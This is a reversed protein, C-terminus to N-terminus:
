DDPTWGWIDLDEDHVVGACAASDAAAANWADYDQLEENHVEQWRSICSARCSSYLHTCRKPALVLYRSESSGHECRAFEPGEAAQHLVYRGFFVLATQPSFAQVHHTYNGEEVEKPSPRTDRRFHLGRSFELPVLALQKAAKPIWINAVDLILEEELRGSEYHWDNYRTISAIIRLTFDRLDLDGLDIEDVDACGCEALWESAKPLRLHPFLVGMRSEFDNYHLFFDDLRPRMPVGSAQACLSPFLVHELHVESTRHEDNHLWGIGGRQGRYTGEILGLVVADPPLILQLQTQSALVIRAIHFNFAGFHQSDLQELSLGVCSKFDSSARHLEELPTENLLRTLEASNPAATFGHYKLHKRASELSEPSSCLGNSLAAPGLELELDPPRVTAALSTYSDLLTGLVAEKGTGGPMGCSFSSSDSHHSALM